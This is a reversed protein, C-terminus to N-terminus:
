ASKGRVQEWVIAQLEHRKVGLEDAVEEYAKIAARRDKIKPSDDLGVARFAWRDMTVRGNSSPKLINVFFASIKPGNLISEVAMPVHLDPLEMIRRAKDKNAKYTCVKAIDGFRLYQETDFVNREWKNNPSLAAMVGVVKTVPVNFKYALKTCVENAQIYWALGNDKTQKSASNYHDKLLQKM